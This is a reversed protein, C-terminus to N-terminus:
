SLEPRVTSYYDIWEPQSHTIVRQSTPQRRRIARSVEVAVSYIYLVACFLLRIIPGINDQLTTAARRCVSWWTERNMASM